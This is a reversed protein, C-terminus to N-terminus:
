PRGPSSRQREKCAVCVRTWSVAKLRASPITQECDMCVGYNGSDIRQIAEEIARLLKSDTQKSALSVHIDNEVSSRDVWDGSRQPPEVSSSRSAAAVLEDKKRALIERYKKLEAARM